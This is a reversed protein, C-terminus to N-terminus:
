LVFSFHLPLAALAHTHQEFPYRTVAMDFKDQTLENDKIWFTM